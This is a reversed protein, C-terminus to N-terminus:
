KPQATPCPAPKPKNPAKDCGRFLLQIWLNMCFSFLCASSQLAPFCAGQGSLGGAPAVQLHVWVALCGMGLVRATETHTRAHTRISMYTCIHGSAYKFFLSSNIPMINGNRKDPTKM